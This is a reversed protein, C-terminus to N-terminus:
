GASWPKSSLHSYTSRTIFKLDKVSASTVGWGLGPRFIRTNGKYVRNMTTKDVDHLGRLEGTQRLGLTNIFRAAEMTRVIDCACTFYSVEIRDFVPAHTVVERPMIVFVDGSNDSRYLTTPNLTYMWGSPVPQYLGDTRTRLVWRFQCNRNREIMVIKTICTQLKQDQTTNSTTMWSMHKVHSRAERIESARIHGRQGKFTDLNDNSTVAIISANLSNRFIEHAHYVVPVVFTRVYGTMCIISGGRSM